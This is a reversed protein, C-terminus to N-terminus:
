GTRDTVDDDMKTEVVVVEDSKELLLFFDPNFEGRKSRGNGGPQYGYEIGYFGVDPAKM